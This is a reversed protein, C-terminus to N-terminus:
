NLTIRDGYHLSLANLAAKWGRTTGTVNSRGKLPNRIVLYLVKLAAQETPFHGRRRTAQRFRANLSEIANTTYIVKRIETPFALFPVFTPWADRWLRIVAPYRDGWDTEFEAFRQEAAAETPATYIERLDKTLRSWHTKSAYRLSSRVLHVVCQQVTAQPWIEAIAEPLGKLGDCCAICVDAVGRNRLEALVTMWHKAGEGGTGVWVGLVDREGACNIGLAVYIPRNAVQGERIKVYLADILVVPYVADLPRARWAEMEAVVNDTIRSILDRSVEVQYIEALHAKIEGTTLGKAYLSIIAEDFGTVRRAHKPVIQPEFEGARDRPVQIEVRGVETSVTKGSTGNRHNGTPGAPREGKDYGLHETMEAELAAQLVTRTIGALLGDPGVLSVGETKAREILEAALQVEM